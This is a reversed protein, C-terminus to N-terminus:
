CTVPSSRRGTAPWGTAPSSRLSATTVTCSSGTPSSVPMVNDPPLKSSFRTTAMEFPETTGGHLFGLFVLFASGLAWLALPTALSRLLGRDLRRGVVSDAILLVSGFLALYSFSKGIVPDAYFAWFCLMAIGGSGVLGIALLVPAARVGRRVALLTAAVGPLATLVLHWGLISLLSAAEAM